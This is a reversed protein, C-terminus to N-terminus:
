DRWRFILLAIVFPIVSWLSIVILEPVIATIGKGDSIVARLSDILPTLPLLKILPQLM